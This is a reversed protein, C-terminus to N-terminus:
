NTLLRLLDSFMTRHFPNKRRYVQSAVNFIDIDFQIENQYDIETNGKFFVVFIFRINKGETLEHTVVVNSEPNSM